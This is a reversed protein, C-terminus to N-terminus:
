KKKYYDAVPMRPEECHKVTGHSFDIEVWTGDVLWHPMMSKHVEVVQGHKGIKFAFGSGDTHLDFVKGILTNHNV